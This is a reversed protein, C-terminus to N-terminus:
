LGAGPVVLVAAPFLVENSANDWDGRASLVLDPRGDATLDGASSCYSGTYDTPHVGILRASDDGLSRSGEFPGYAVYAAGELSYRYATSFHPATVLLDGHGDGDVDGFRAVCSGAQGRDEGSLRIGVEPLHVAGMWSGTVVYAAGAGDGYSISGVALDEAGDGDLDGAAAPFVTTATYAGVDGVTDLVADADALRLTGEVPGLLVYAYGVGGPTYTGVALDAIGDGNFDGDVDLNKIRQGETGVVVADADDAPHEGLLPGEFIRVRRRDDGEDETFALDAIGDGTLDAGGALLQGVSADETTGDFRGIASSLSSLGAQVSAVVYVAGGDSAGGHEADWAGVLLDEVGDEDVDGAFGVDSGAGEYAGPEPSLTAWADTVLAPLEGGGRIVYVAGTAFYPDSETRQPRPTGVILDDIGDGDVDRGGILSMPDTFAGDIEIFSAIDAVDYSGVLRCAGATGDCDDDLGNNCVEEADPRVGAEGDDCDGACTTWGDADADFGEDLEGDCDQDVGDCSEVAGSYVSADAPACDDDDSVGDADADASATDVESAPTPEKDAPACSLLLWTPWVLPLLRTM